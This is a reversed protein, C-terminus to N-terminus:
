ILALFLERDPSESSEIRAKLRRRKTYYNSYSLNSILAVARPSLGSFILLLFIMDSEKLEPMQSRLKIMVDFNCKNTIKELELLAKKEAMKDIETKISSYISLKTKISTNSKEVYESCLMNLTDFHQSFLDKVIGNLEQAKQEQNNLQQEKIYLETKVGNLENSLNKNSLLSENLNESLINVENIWSAIKYNKLRIKEVLYLSLILIIFLAIGVIWGTRINAKKVRNREREAKLKHYNSKAEVISQKLEKEVMNDQYRAIWTFEDLAKELSKEAKYILFENMRLSLEKANEYEAAKNLYLRASDLNDLFIYARSLLIYDEASISTNNAEYIDFFRHKLEGYEGMSLLPYLSSSIISNRLVSDQITSENLRQLSDLLNLSEIYYENEHQNMLAKALDLLHWCLLEVNGHKEYYGTTKKRNELELPANYTDSYIDAILEYVRGLWLPNNLIKADQEADLASIISHSYNGAQELIRSKLFHSKVRKEIDDRHRYYRVAINILSDDTEDIYNKYRAQTLLLAYRANRAGSLGKPEIIEMIKLASDPAEEMLLEARDMASDVENRCSVLVSCATIIAIFFLVMRM